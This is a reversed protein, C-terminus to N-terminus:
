RVTGVQGCLAARIQDRRQGYAKKSFLECSLRTISKKWCKEHAKISFLQCSLLRQRKRKWYKEAVWEVAFPNDTPSEEGDSAIQASSEKHKEETQDKSWLVTEESVLFPLPALEM